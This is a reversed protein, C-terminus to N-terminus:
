DILLSNRHYKKLTKVLTTSINLLVFTATIVEDRVKINIKIIYKSVASLERFNPNLRILETFTM